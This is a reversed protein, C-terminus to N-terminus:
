GRLGARKLDDESIGMLRGKRSVWGRSNVLLVRARDPFVDYITRFVPPAVQRGGNDILGYEGVMVSAWDGVFEAAHDYRAPIRLKGDMDAYGWKAGARVPLLPARHPAKIAEWLPPTIKRTELDVVGWLAGNRYTALKGDGNYDTDVEDHLPPLIWKGDFDMIGVKGQLKVGYAVIQRGMSVEGEPAFLHLPEVADFTPAIAFNGKMDVAGWKGAVRVPIPHSDEAPIGVDEFGDKIIRGARDILAFTAGIRVIAAEARWFPRCEDFGLPITLAGKPDIYGCKADRTVDALQHYFMGAEDWREASIPQGDEALHGFVEREKFLLPFAHARWGIQQYKPPLIIRGKRDALGFLGARVVVIYEPEVRLRRDLKVGFLEDWLEPNLTRLAHDTLRRKDGVTVSYGGGANFSFESYQPPTVVRGDQDISGVGDPTWVRGVDGAWDGAAQYIPAIVTNGETDIYGCQETEVCASLLQRNPEAAQRTGSVAVSAFALAAVAVVAHHHM